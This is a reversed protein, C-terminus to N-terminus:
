IYTRLAIPSSIIHVPVFRLLAIYLIHLLPRFAPKSVSVERQGVVSMPLPAPWTTAKFSFQNQFQFFYMLDWSNKWCFNAFPIQHLEIVPEVVMNSDPRPTSITPFDPRSIESIKDSTVPRRHQCLHSPFLSVHLAQDCLTSLHPPPHLCFKHWSFTPVLPDRYISM